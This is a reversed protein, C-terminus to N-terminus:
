SFSIHTRHPAGSKWMVGELYYHTLFLYVLVTSSLLWVNQLLYAFVIACVPSMLLVPLGLPTFIKYLANHTMELNRNHDHTVYFIFATIDHIVRNIIVAFLPYGLALFGFPALISATMVGIMLRGRIDPAYWFAYLATLVFVVSVLPLAYATIAYMVVDHVYSDLFLVFLIASLVIASVKYIHHVIDRMRVYTRAVGVQQSVVHYETFLVFFALASLPMFWAFVAYAICLLPIGVVLRNKYARVYERDFFTLISAVHHPVNFLLAFLFLTYPYVPLIDRWYGGLVAIDFLVVACLVPIILYPLFLWSRRISIARSM